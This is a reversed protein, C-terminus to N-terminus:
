LELPFSVSAIWGDAKNSVSGFDTGPSFSGLQQLTTNTYKMNQYELNLSVAVLHFGAGIRYGQPQSFKVDYSGSKEPELEGTLIYTGWVRLGVIPMQVGVVPGLNYSKATANYNTSSDKFTTMSYRGDLGAFIVESIHFGVRAGVGFGTNEGSSDSLPSPYNISTDVSEYTLMPEVFLGSHASGRAMANLCTLLSFSIVVLHWLSFHLSKQSNRSAIIM